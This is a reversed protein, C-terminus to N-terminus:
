KEYSTKRGMFKWVDEPITIDLHNKAWEKNPVDTSASLSLDSSPRSSAVFSGAEPFVGSPPPHRPFRRVHEKKEIHDSLIRHHFCNFIEEDKDSSLLADGLIACFKYYNPKDHKELVSIKTAEIRHM